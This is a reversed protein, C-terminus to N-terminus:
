SLMLIVLSIALFLFVLAITTYFLLKEVGRKQYYTGGSSGFAGGLGAGRKQLLVVGILSISIFIQTILLIKLM